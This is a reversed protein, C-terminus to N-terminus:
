ETSRWAKQACKEWRARRKRSKKSAGMIWANLRPKFEYGMATLLSCAEPQTLRLRVAVEDTSWSTKLGIWHDLIAPGLVGQESWNSVVRRARRDLHVRKSWHLLENAKAAALGVTFEVGVDQLFEAFPVLLDGPGGLGEPEHVIIETWTAPMYGSEAGRRLDGITIKNLELSEAFLHGDQSVGWVTTMPNTDILAGGVRTAEPFSLLVALQTPLNQRTGLIHKLAADIVVRLSDLDDGKVSHRPLDGLSATGDM